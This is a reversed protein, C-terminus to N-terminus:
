ETFNVTQTFTNKEEQIKKGMMGNKFLNRGTKKGDIKKKGSAKWSTMIRGPPLPRHDSSDSFLFAPVTFCKKRRVRTIGVVLVVAPLRFASFGAFFVTLSPPQVFRFIFMVEGTGLVDLPDPLPALVM